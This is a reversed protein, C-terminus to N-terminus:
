RRNIATNLIEMLMKIGHIDIYGIIKGFEKDYSDTGNTVYLRTKNGEGDVSIQPDSVVCTSATAEFMIIKDNM